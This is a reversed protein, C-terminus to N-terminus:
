PGLGHAGGVSSHGAIKLASPANNEVPCRRLSKERYEGPPPSSMGKSEMIAALDRPNVSYPSLQLEFISGSHLYSHPIAPIGLSRRVRSVTVPTLDM